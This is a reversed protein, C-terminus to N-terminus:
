HAQPSMTAEVKGRRDTQQRVWWHHHHCLLWASSFSTLPPSAFSPPSSSIFFVVSPPCMNHVSRIYCGLGAAFLNFKCGLQLEILCALKKM